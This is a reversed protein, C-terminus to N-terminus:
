LCDRAVAAHHNSDCAALVWPLAAVWRGSGGCFESGADWPLSAAAVGGQSVPSIPQYLFYEAHWFVNLLGWLAVVASGGALGMVLRRDEIDIAAAMSFGGPSATSAPSFM